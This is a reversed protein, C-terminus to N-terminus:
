ESVQRRYPALLSCCHSCCASTSTCCFQLSADPQRRAQLNFATTRLNQAHTPQCKAGSLRIAACPSDTSSGTQDESQPEVADIDVTLCLLRFSDLSFPCYFRRLLLCKPHLPLLRAFPTRPLPNVRPNRASAAPSMAWPPPLAPLSMMWCSPERGGSTVPAELPIQDMWGPENWMRWGCPQKARWYWRQQARHGAGVGEILGCACWMLM